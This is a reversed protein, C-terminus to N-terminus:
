FWDKYIQKLLFRRCYRRRGSIGIRKVVLIWWIKLVAGINSATQAPLTKFPQGNNLFDLTGSFDINGTLLGANVNGSFNAGGTPFAVSGSQALNTVEDVKIRSAM